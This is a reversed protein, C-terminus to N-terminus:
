AAGGRVDRGSLQVGLPEEVFGLEHEAQHGALVALSTLRAAPRPSAAAKFVHLLHESSV